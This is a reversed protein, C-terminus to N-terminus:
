SGGAKSERISRRIGLLVPKHFMGYKQPITTMGDLMYDTYDQHWCRHGNSGAPCSCKYARWRWLMRNEFRVNITKYKIVYGKVTFKGGTFAGVPIRLMKVKLRAIERRVVKEALSVSWGKKPALKEARKRIEKKSFSKGSPYPDVDDEFVSPRKRETAKRKGEDRKIRRVSAMKFHGAMKEELIYRPRLAM